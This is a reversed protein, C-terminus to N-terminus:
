NSGEGEREGEEEEREEAEGAVPGGNAATPKVLIYTVVSSEKLILVGDFEPSLLLFEYLSLFHCNFSKLMMESSGLM